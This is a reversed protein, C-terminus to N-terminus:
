WDKVPQNENQSKEQPKLTLFQEDEKQSDLRLKAEQAFHEFKETSV